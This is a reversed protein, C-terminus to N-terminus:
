GSGFSGLPCSAVSVQCSNEERKSASSTFTAAATAPSSSSFDMLHMGQRLIQARWRAGTATAAAFITPALATPSMGLFGIGGHRDPHTPVLQLNLRSLNFLVDDLSVVESSIGLLFQYLLQSVLIYYWAAASLHAGAGTGLLAWPRALHLQSHVTLLVRAYAAVIIILEPIVSDRLRLLRVLTLELRNTDSPTLLQAGCIHELVKRFASEMVIQGLLLVPVGILMRANIPYDSVLGFVARPNSLLTILVLPLWGVAIAFTLRRGLNWRDQQILRAAAQARYFPGARVLSVDIGPNAQVPDNSTGSLSRRIPESACYSDIRKKLCRVRCKNLTGAYGELRARPSCPMRMRETLRENDRSSKAARLPPAARDLLDPGTIHDPERRVLLVPMSGRWSRGHRVDGNLFLQLPLNDVPQFLDAVFLVLAQCLRV